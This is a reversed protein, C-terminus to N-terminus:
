SPVSQHHRPKARAGSGHIDLVQKSSMREGYDLPEDACEATWGQSRIALATKQNGMRKYSAGKLALSQKIKPKEENLGNKQEKRCDQM